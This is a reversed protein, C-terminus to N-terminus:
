RKVGGLKDAWREPFRNYYWTIREQATWGKHFWRDWLNNFVASPVGVVLLYLPGLYQSQRSHGQEHRRDIAGYAIDLFIYRGLSVGWSPMNITIFLNGPMTEDREITDIRGALQLIAKILLALLHQPLQWIYGLINLM